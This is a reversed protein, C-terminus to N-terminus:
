EVKQLKTVLEKLRNEDGGTMEGVLKTNSYGLFRPIGSIQLHSLLSQGADDVDVELFIIDKNDKALQKYTPAIRKCPGCWTATFKIVVKSNWDLITKFDDLDTIYQISM